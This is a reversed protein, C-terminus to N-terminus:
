LTTPNNHKILIMFYYYYICFSSIVCHGFGTTTTLIPPMPPLAPCVFDILFSRIGEICGIRRIRIVVTSGFQMKSSVRWWSTVIAGFLEIARLFMVRSASVLRVMLPEM